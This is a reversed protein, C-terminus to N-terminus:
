VRPQPREGEASAMAATVALDGTVNVATRFMDLFRDVGLILAVGVPPIQAATLVLALTIMGAGPVGAAGISAATATLVISLQDIVSLEIGFVQAIFLAAVGQYLATGDMNVTSGLPIVFSAVSNSVGMKKEACALTVPIAASSSSTSFALMQAPRAARAFGVLPMRAVWKVLGGYVLGTHLLLGVIVALAYVMLAKLVSWGSQGVVEAILAAVGYPALKMVLNIVWIMAQQLTDMLRVVQEAGSGKLLTLAVGLLAAFFIVQLMDGSALSAIPNVPVIRLMNEVLSPAGAAATTRSFADGEFQARLSASDAASMFSGPQFVHAVLLGLSVALATTCLYTALTRGGLRGLKRVDGLSAVGVLLSSFVLPVIVMKILRMFLAGIPSLWSMATIGFASVAEPFVVSEGDGVELRRLHLWAEIKGNAVVNASEASPGGEAGAGAPAKLFPGLKADTDLMAIRADYDFAVRAVDDSHQSVITLTLPAAEPVPLRASEKTPGTRLEVLSARDVVFVDAELLASRPGLVLGLVVGVLMGILIKTYLQMASDKRLIGAGRRPARWPGV